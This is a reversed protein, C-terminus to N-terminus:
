LRGRAAAARSKVQQARQVQSPTLAPVETISQYAQLFAQITAITGNMADVAKKPADAAFIPIDLKAFNNIISSIKGVTTPNAAADQTIRLVSDLYARAKNQDAASLGDIFQIATEASIVIVDLDKIPDSHCKAALTLLALLVIVLKKM